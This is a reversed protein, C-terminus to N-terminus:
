NKRIGELLGRLAADEGVVEPETSKAPPLSRNSSFFRALNEGDARIEDETEGSLKNSIEMPLGLQSAVRVRMAEKEHKKATGQLETIQQEFSSKDAQAQALQNKYTEIEAAFNTNQTKLSDYDEYKKSISDRERRIREQIRQDFEEQTNIPTFEAM